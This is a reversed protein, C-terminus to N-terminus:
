AATALRRRGPAARRGALRTAADGLLLRVANLDGNVMLWWWSDDRDTSFGLRTGQLYLRARLVQEAEAIRRERDAAVPTRELVQLWDIVAGTPWQNPLPQISQLLRPPVKGSRSLAELAALKRVELDGNKLFAPVWFRRELRGEVFAVLAAEMRERLAAPIAFDSGAEASLSLLYATLTDSGSNASGPPPPFYNVLGEADLYLPLREMLAGWAAADHQGVAASARQELCTWPYRQFYERVGPLGDALRPRLALEVGGCMAGREDRLASQPPAVPLSASGELQRLTAQQVTVPVAERVAQTFKMRDRATGSEASITWELSKAHFPVLVDWAAEQAGHAPVQLSVPVLSQGGASSALAAKVSVQMAQATTNRLTISARYRDGERVLPPLGAVIQLDQTSRIQTSGTGFLAANGGAVADAIAVIRFSTLADNLPVTVRAEGQADLTVRPNWLLLTDFLERTPFSGGGGGPPAAKKGFHRKGIVQM